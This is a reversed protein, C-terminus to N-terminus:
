RNLDHIAQGAAQAVSGAADKLDGAIQDDVGDEALSQSGVARGIGEKVMGLVSKGKGSARSKSGWLSTRNAANEVTDSGTAYEPRPQNIVFYAALGFGIGAIIWPLAKM